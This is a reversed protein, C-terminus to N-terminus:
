FLFPLPHALFVVIFVFPTPSGICFITPTCVIFRGYYSYWLPQFDLCSRLLGLGSFNPVNTLLLPRPFITLWVSNPVGSWPVQMKLHLPPIYCTSSVTRLQPTARTLSFRVIFAINYAFAAVSPLFSPEVLFVSVQSALRSWLLACLKGMELM